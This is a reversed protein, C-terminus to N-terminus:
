PARGREHGSRASTAVVPVNESEDPTDTFGVEHDRYEQIEGVEKFPLDLAFQRMAHVLQRIDKTPTFATTLTDHITLGM